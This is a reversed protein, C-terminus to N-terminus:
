HQPPHPFHSSPSSSVIYQGPYHVIMSLSFKLRKNFWRIFLFCPWFSAGIWAWTGAMDGGRLLPILSSILVARILWGMVPHVTLSYRVVKALLFGYLASLVIIGILGAESYFDGFLTPSFGLTSGTASDVLGVAELFGGGTPKGHWLFRPIPRLLIELHAMGLRFPVINPFAQKLYVFGDIMNADESSTVRALAIQWTSGGEQIYILVRAAAFLISTLAGGGILILFRIRPRYVSTFLIGTTALWGIFQFRGSGSWTLTSVQYILFISTLKYLLKGKGSCRWVLVILTTIGILVLPFLYLYASIDFALSRGSLRQDVVTQRVSLILPIVVMGWVLLRPWIRSLIERKVYQDVQLVPIVKPQYCCYFLTLLIQGIIIELLATNASELTIPILRRSYVSLNVWENLGQQVAIVRYSTSYLLLANVVLPLEDNRYLLWWVGLFALFTQTLFLTEFSM